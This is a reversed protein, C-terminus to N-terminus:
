QSIEQVHKWSLRNAIRFAQRTSIHHRRGLAEYTEGAAHGARIALVDGTALKVMGHGEGRAQRQKAVKDAINEAQTGAFLHGPNCCLPNDCRHCVNLGVPVPGNAIAFAVRHPRM